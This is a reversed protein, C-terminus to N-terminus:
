VENKMHIRFPLKLLGNYILYYQYNYIKPNKAGFIYPSSVVFVYLISFTLFISENVIGIFIICYFLFDLSYKIFLVVGVGLQGSTIPIEIDKM